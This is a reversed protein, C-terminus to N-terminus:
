STQTDKFIWHTYTVGLDEFQAGTTVQFSDDGCYVYIQFPMSLRKKNQSAQDLRVWYNLGNLTKTMPIHLM